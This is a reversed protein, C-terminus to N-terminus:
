HLTAGAHRTFYKRHTHIKTHTTFYRPICELMYTPLVVIGFAIIIWWQTYFPANNLAPHSYIYNYNYDVASSPETFTRIATYVALLILIAINLSALTPRIHRTAIMALLASQHMALTVFINFAHTELDIPFGFLPTHVSVMSIFSLTYLLQGVFIIHIMGKTGQPINLLFFLAFVAPAFDCFWYFVFYNTFFNRAIILAQLSLFTIGWFLNERTLRLM